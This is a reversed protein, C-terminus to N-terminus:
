GAFGPSNGNTQGSAVLTEEAHHLRSTGLAASPQVLRSVEHAGPKGAGMENHANMLSKMVLSPRSEDEEAQSTGVCFAM